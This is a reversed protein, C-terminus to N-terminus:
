DASTRRDAILALRALHDEVASALRDLNRRAVDALHRERADLDRAAVLGDVAM